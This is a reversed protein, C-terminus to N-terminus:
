VQSANLHIAAIAPNFYQTGPKMIHKPTVIQLRKNTMQMQPQTPNFVKMPTLFHQSANPCM